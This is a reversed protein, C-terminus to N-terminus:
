ASLDRRRLPRPRLAIALRDPTIGRMDWAHFVACEEGVGALGRRVVEDGAAVHGRGCRLYVPPPDALGLGADRALRHSPSAGAVPVRRCPQGRAFDDVQTPGSACRSRGARREGHRRAPRGSRLVPRPEPHEANRTTWRQTGALRPASRPTRSPSRESRRDKRSFNAPTCRSHM